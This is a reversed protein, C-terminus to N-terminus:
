NDIHFLELLQNIVEQPIQKVNADHYNHWIELLDYWKELDWNIGFTIDKSYYRRNVNAVWMPHNHSPNRHNFGMSIQGMGIGRIKGTISLYNKLSLTINISVSAGGHTKIKGVTVTREIYFNNGETKYENIQKVYLRM